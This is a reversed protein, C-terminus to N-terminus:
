SLFTWRFSDASFVPCFLVSVPRSPGTEVPIRRHSLVRFRADASLCGEIFTQTAGICPRSLGTELTPRCDSPRAYAPTHAPTRTPYAPCTIAVIGSM